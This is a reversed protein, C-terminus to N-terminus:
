ASEKAVVLAQETVAHEVAERRRAARERRLAAQM